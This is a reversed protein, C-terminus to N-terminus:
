ESDRRGPNRAPDNSLFGFVFLLIFFAVVVYVVIKLTVM